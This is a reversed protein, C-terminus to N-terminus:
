SDQHLLFLSKICAACHISKLPHFSFFFDRFFQSWDEWCFFSINITIIKVNKWEVSLSFINQNDAKYWHNIITKQSVHQTYSFDNVKEKSAWKSECIKITSKTHNACFLIYFFEWWVEHLASIKKRKFYCYCYYLCSSGFHFSFHFICSIAHYFHCSSTKQAQTKTHSISLSFPVM